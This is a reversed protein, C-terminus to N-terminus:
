WDISYRDVKDLIEELKGGSKNKNPEEFDDFHFSM